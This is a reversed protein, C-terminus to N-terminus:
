PPSQPAPAISVEGPSRGGARHPVNLRRLLDQFRPEDRLNDWDWAVPLHILPPEHEQCAKELWDLAQGKDGAHAYLRATRLAPVYSQQSRVSLKEAARRMADRYDPESDGRALVDAIQRDGLIAFFTRAEALAEAFMRKQYFAGWLGLQASSFNPDTKLTRHLHEIAEDYRHLYILELGFFCQLFYIM